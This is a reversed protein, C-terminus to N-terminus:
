VLVLVLLPLLTLLLLLLLLLPLKLQMLEHHRSKNDFRKRAPPANILSQALFVFFAFFLFVNTTSFGGM